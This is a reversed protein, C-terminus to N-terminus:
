SGGSHPNFLGNTADYYDRSLQLLPALSAPVQARSNQLLAANFRTLDSDEWAHWQERQISLRREIETLLHEAHNLDGTIM